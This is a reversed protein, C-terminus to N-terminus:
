KEKDKKRDDASREKLYDAAINDGSYKIKYDSLKQKAVVRDFVEKLSAEEELSQLQGNKTSKQKTLSVLQSYVAKDVEKKRNTPSLYVNKSNTINIRDRQEYTKTTLHELSSFNKSSYVNPFPKITSIKAM